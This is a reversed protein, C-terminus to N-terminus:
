GFSLFLSLTEIFCFGRYGLVNLKGPKKEYFIPLIKLDSIKNDSYKSAWFRQLCTM